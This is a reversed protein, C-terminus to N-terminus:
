IMETQPISKKLRNIVTEKGLLHMILGLDPGHNLGSIAIRIPFFLKKAKLELEEGLKNIENKMSVADNFDFNEVRDLLESLLNQGEDIFKQLKESIEFEEFYYFINENIDEFKNLNGRISDILEEQKERSFKGLEYKLYPKLKELLEDFSLKAIYERNYWNLKQIDYIAPSKSMGAIDFNSKGHGLDYVEQGSPCTYSTAILYNNLADSLYGERMYKEIGAIDGHKRKSLKQKDKTFILPLHGFEPIEYDLVQYMAIQKATNTLHDEGRYVHTVGMDNDDIVVAFNYLAQGNAKMIVPDGGLDKTNISMEGRIHDNWKIERPEGLKLRIVFSKGEAIEEETPEQRYAKGSELLQDVVNKHVGQRLSQRVIGDVELHTLLYEDMGLPIDWDISLDNFGQVIEQTFEDKSRKQDTDELRFFFKGGHRRAYLLNYLATRVTGLHLNGTPSPAIRTVVQKM